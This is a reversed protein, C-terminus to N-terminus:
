KVQELTLKVPTGYYSGERLIYRANVVKFIYGNTEIEEGVRPIFNLTGQFVNHGNRLDARVTFSM